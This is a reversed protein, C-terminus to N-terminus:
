SYSELDLNPDVIGSATSKGMSNMTPGVVHHNKLRKIARNRSEKNYRYIIKDAENAKELKQKEEEKKNVWDAHRECDAHCGVRRDQCDRCPNPPYRIMLIM